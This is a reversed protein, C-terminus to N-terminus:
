AATSWIQQFDKEYAAGWSSSDIVVLNENNANSASVTYNFSGTLIIHGDVITVKNHMLASNTDWRINIGSNKLYYFQSSTDNVDEREMVVKVDVGRKQAAILAQSVDSLTFEYILVHVSVNAKNIWSVLVQDCNGGPSFCYQVLDTPGEVTTTSTATTTSTVISVSSKAAGWQGGVSFAAAGVILLIVAFSLLARGSVM